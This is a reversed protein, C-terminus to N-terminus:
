AKLHTGATYPASQWWKPEFPGFLVWRNRRVRRIACALRRHWWFNETCTRHDAYRVRSEGQVLTACAKWGKGSM